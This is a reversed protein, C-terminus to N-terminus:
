GAVASTVPRTNDMMYARISTLVQEHADRDRDRDAMVRAAQQTVANRTVALGRVAEVLLGERRVPDTVPGAPIDSGRRTIHGFSWVEVQGDDAQRLVVVQDGSPLTVALHDGASGGPLFDALPRM